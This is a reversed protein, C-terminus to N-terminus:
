RMQKRIRELSSTQDQRLVVFVAVGIAAGFDAAAAAQTRAGQLAAPVVQAEV